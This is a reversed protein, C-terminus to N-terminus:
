QSAGHARAALNQIIELVWATEVGRSARAQEIIRLNNATTAPEWTENIAAVANALHEEAVVSDDELVALELMTAHDWYNPDSSELRQEVAFRVVPLLRKEERLSTDDGKVDLLTLLNVGPYADRQDALYGRRYADIANNIHGSAELRDGGALAESWNDKHIRGILGCTEASAGQQAEVDLLTRLAELRDAANKTEGARRNYAFGLQERVLIQRKLMEPMDAVLQIMGDWNELARYTLMLDVVTSVQAADLAGLEDRFVALGQEAEKRTEKAKGQDRIATLQRKLNEDAQVEARFTDTKLHAINGPQWEKLLQFLPSDVSEERIALDRLERLRNTVAERLAKAQKKGFRNKKGLDYPLSRLFSVDFPIPQHKAFIMLTTAPRAAHRVGLEYFVNANATTLDAVAYDCLLLRELMPKHIIGGAREEDARIPQMGAAEIGSKIAEGYIRDFDIDPGGAPDPKQNFPMVVFCLPSQAV